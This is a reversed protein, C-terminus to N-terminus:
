RVAKRPCRRGLGSRQHFGKRTQRPWLAYHGFRHLLHSRWPSISLKPQKGDECGEYCRRLRAQEHRAGLNQRKCRMDKKAECISVQECHFTFKGTATFVEKSCSSNM